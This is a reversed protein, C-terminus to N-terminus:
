HEVKLPSRSGAKSRSAFIGATIQGIALGVVDAIWDFLDCHRSPIFAQSVEELSILVFLVFTIATICRPLHRIRFNPLALNCLFGLTAFLGIHGLKDAYRTNHIFPWCSEGYGLDAIVVAAIIFVGFSLAAIRLARLRVSHEPSNM